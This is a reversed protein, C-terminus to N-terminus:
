IVDRDEPQTPPEPVPVPQSARVQNKQDRIKLEDPSNHKRKRCIIAKTGFLIQSRCHTHSALGLRSMSCLRKSKIHSNMSAKHSIVFPPLKRKTTSLVLLDELPNASTSKLKGSTQSSAVNLADLQKPPVVSENPVSKQPKTAQLDIENSQQKSQSIKHDENTVKRKKPGISPNIPDQISLATSDLDTNGTTAEVGIPLAETGTERALIATQRINENKARTLLADYHIRSHLIHIAGKSSTESTYNMLFGHKRTQLSWVLIPVQYIEAAALAEVDSGWSVRPTTQTMFSRYDDSNQNNRLNAFDHAESHIYNAHDKYRNWHVIVHHGCQQRLQLHDRDNLGLARLIARFLCHGDGAVDSKFLLGRFLPDHTIFASPDLADATTLLKRDPSGRVDDKSLVTKSPHIVNGTDAPRLRKGKLSQETPTDTDDATQSALQSPAQRKHAAYAPKPALSPSDKLGNDSQQMTHPAQPCSKTKQEDRSAWAMAFAIYDDETMEHLPKQIPFFRLRDKFLLKRKKVEDCHARWMDKHTVVIARHITRAMKLTLEDTFQSGGFELIWTKFRNSIQGASRLRTHAHIPGLLMNNLAKEIEKQSGKM